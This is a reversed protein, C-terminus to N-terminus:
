GGGKRERLDAKTLEIGRDVSRACHKIVDWAMCGLFAGFFIAWEM